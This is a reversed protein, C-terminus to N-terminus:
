CGEDEALFEQWEDSFRKKWLYDKPNDSEEIAINVQWSTELWKKARVICPNDLIFEAMEETTMYRMKPPELKKFHNWDTTRYLVGNFYNGVYVGEVAICQEGCVDVVIRERKIGSDGWVMAWFHGPKLKHESM